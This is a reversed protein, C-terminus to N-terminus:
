SPARPASVTFMGLTFPSDCTPPQPASPPNVWNEVVVPNKLFQRKTPTSGFTSAAFDELNDQLFVVYCM